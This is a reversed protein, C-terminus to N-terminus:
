SMVGWTESDLNMLIDGRLEGKPLDNAGFMGTEEDKTILGEIPGHKLTNSEMVAMIAAVGIGNDAGLTTNNGYVWGDTIHTEIPDTEFNHKSDPSKQPVMDMHAQMTVTKRNEYGPTAAKRMLINGAPDLFAEVGAKQAFDLLFKQVKELHGSPRPVKTLDDFNRWLGEPKLNRIESM